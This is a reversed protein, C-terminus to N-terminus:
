GRTAEATDGTVEPDFGAHAFSPRALLHGWFGYLWIGGVGATAAIDTWHLTDGGIGDGPLVLWALDLWHAALALLAVALLARASRKVRRFLLLTFPVVFQILVLIIAVPQWIGRSRMLFWVTERPIDEAWIILFQVFVLYMWTMIFALLLNGLDNGREAGLEVPAHKVHEPSLTPRSALLLQMRAACAVAFAFAGLGQGVIVILGLATSSWQPVLSGVWDIAAFTVTCGYILLGIASLGTVRQQRRASRELLLALVIWILLYVIARIVFFTTNLYWHKGGGASTAAWPFLHTVGIAIPVFLVALLALQWVASEFYRRVPVGWGGDTLHYTMLAAMSGLSLSLAFLWAMLYSRLAFSVNTFAGIACLVLGILGVALAVHRRRAYAHM